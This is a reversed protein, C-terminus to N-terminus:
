GADMKVTQTAAGTPHGQGEIGLTQVRPKRLRMCRDNSSNDVLLHADIYAGLSGKYNRVYEKSDENPLM